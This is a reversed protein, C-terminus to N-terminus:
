LAPFLKIIIFTTFLGLVMFISVCVYFLYGLKKRDYSKLKGSVNTLSKSAVQMGIEAAGLVNKDEDLANQFATAGEKLSSVLKTMDEILGNQLGENEEIQNEVTKNYSEAANTGDGDNLGGLLRKRLQVLGEDEQEISSTFGDGEDAISEIKDEAIDRVTDVAENSDFDVTLRRRKSEEQLKNYEKQLKNLYKYKNSKSAYELKSFKLQWSKLLESNVIADGKLKSRRLFSINKDQKNNLLYMLFPDEQSEMREDLESAINVLREQIKDSM